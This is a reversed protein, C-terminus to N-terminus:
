YAQWRTRAQVLERGDSTRLLRHLRTLPEDGSAAQSVCTVSEGLLAENRYLLESEVLRHQRSFEPPMSNVLWDVYVANNVHGNQDIDTLRAQTVYEFEPKELAPLREYCTDLARPEEAPYQETVFGPISAMKRKELDIIAWHATAVALTEGSVSRMRYDRLAFLRELGSRWTEVRVKERWRPLRAGSEVRMHFRAVVWAIGKPALQPNSINLEEAHLGAAEQFIRCLHPASLEGRFNLEYHRLAFEQTWANSM